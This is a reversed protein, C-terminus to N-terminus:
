KKLDKIIKRRCTSNFYLNISQNMLLFTDMTINIDPKTYYFKNNYIRVLKMAYMDIEKISLPEDSSFLPKFSISEVLRNDEYTSHISIRTKVKLTSSLDRKVINILVRYRM